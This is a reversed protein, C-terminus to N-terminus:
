DDDDVSKWMIDTPTILFIAPNFWHGEPRKEMLDVMLSARDAVVTGYCRLDHESATMWTRNKAVKDIVAGVTDGPQLDIDQVRQWVMIEKKTKEPTGCPHIQLFNIGIRDKSPTPKAVRDKIPTCKAAQWLLRPPKPTRYVTRTRFAVEKEDNTVFLVDLNDYCAQERDEKKSGTDLVDWEDKSIPDRYRMNTM